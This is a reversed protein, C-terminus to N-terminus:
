RLSIDFRGDKAEYVTGDERELRFWFRGALIGKTTDFTTITLEGSEKVNDSKSNIYINKVTDEFSFRNDLQKSILFKGIGYFNPSFFIIGEWRSLNTDKHTAYISLLGGGEPQAYLTRMQGSVNPTTKWPQGNLMCGFTNAGIATEPPLDPEPTERQCTALLFILSLGLILKRMVFFSIEQM